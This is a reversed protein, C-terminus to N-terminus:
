VHGTFVAEVTGSVEYVAQFLSIERIKAYSWYLIHTHTASPCTKFFL